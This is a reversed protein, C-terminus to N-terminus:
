GIHSIIHGPGSPNWSGASNGAAQKAAGEVNAGALGGFRSGSQQVPYGCDTCRLATQPTASFYNSSGCDPCTDALRASQAKTQAVQPQFSPMAQMPQQSPPMPPMPDPRGQQVPAQGNQQALKQAWWNANNM